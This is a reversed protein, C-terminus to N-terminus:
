VVTSFVNPQTTPIKWKNCLYKSMILLYKLIFKFHYRNKDPNSVSGKGRHRASVALPWRSIGNEGQLTPPPLGLSLISQGQFQGRRGLVIKSYSSRNDGCRTTDEPM